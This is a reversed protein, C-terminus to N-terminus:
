CIVSYKHSVGTGTREQYWHEEWYIWKRRLAKTVLVFLYSFFAPHCLNFQQVNFIFIVRSKLMQLGKGVYTCLAQIWKSSLKFRSRKIHFNCASMTLLSLVIYVVIRVIYVYPTLVIKKLFKSNYHSFNWMISSVVINLYSIIEHFM